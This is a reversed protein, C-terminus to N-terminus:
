CAQEKSAGCRQELLDVLSSRMSGSAVAQLGTAPPDPSKASEESKGREAAEACEAPSASEPGDASKAVEAVETRDGAKDSSARTVVIAPPPASSIAPRGYVGQSVEALKSAYASPEKAHLKRSDDLFDVSRDVHSVMALTDEVSAAFAEYASAEAHAMTALAAGFFRVRDQWLTKMDTMVEDYLTRYSAKATNYKLEAAAIKVSNNSKQAANLNRLQREMEGRRTDVLHQRHKLDEFQSLYTGTPVAVDQRLVSDLQRRAADMKASTEQYELASNYLLDEPTFMGVIQDVMTKRADCMEKFSLLFRASDQNAKQVARKHAKFRETEDKWHVDANEAKAFRRKTKQAARSVNRKTKVWFNEKPQDQHQVEPPAPSDM